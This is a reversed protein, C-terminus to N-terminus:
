LGYLQSVKSQNKLSWAFDKYLPCRMRVSTHVPIWPNAYDHKEKGPCFQIFCERTEFLNGECVGNGNCERKRIQEGKECTKSCVGFSSWESLVGSHFLWYRVISEFLSTIKKWIGM